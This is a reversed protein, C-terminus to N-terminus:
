KIFFSGIIWLVHSFYLNFSGTKPSKIVLITSALNKLVRAVSRAPPSVATSAKFDDAGVAPESRTSDATFLAISSISPPLGIASLRSLVLSNGGITMPM